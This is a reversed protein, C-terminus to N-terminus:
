YKRRKYTKPKHRKYTKRKHTKYTGGNSNIPRSALSSVQKLGPNGRELLENFTPNKSKRVTVTKVPTVPNRVPVPNRVTVPKKIYELPKKIKSNQEISNNNGNKLKKFEINVM